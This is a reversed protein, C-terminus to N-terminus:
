IAPNSTTVALVHDLGSIKALLGANPPDSLHITAVAAGGGEFIQNSMQQINIGGSRLEQLIAALVGVQDHHRVVLRARGQPTTAELLRGINLLRPLSNAQSPKPNMTGFM